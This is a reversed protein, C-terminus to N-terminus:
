PKNHSIIKLVREMYERERRQLEEPTPPAPEPPTPQTPRGSQAPQPANAQQKLEAPPKSPSVAALTKANVAPRPAAAAQAPKENGVADDDLLEAPAIEPSSTVPETAGTRRAVYSDLIAQYDPALAEEIAKRRGALLDVGLRDALGFVDRRAYRDGKAYQHVLQEIGATARTITRKRERETLTVKRNLALELAKKLDIEIPPKRPRGKPNRVEGKKIQHELPPRGPGVKYEEVLSNHYPPEQGRGGLGNPKAESSM